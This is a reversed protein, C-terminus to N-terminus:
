TSLNQGNLLNRIKQNNGSREGQFVWLKSIRVLMTSLLETKGCKSPTQITGEKKWIPEEPVSLM